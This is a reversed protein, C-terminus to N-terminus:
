SREFLNRDKEIAGRENSNYIIPSFIRESQRNADKFLLHAPNTANNISNRNITMQVDPALYGTKLNLSNLKEPV